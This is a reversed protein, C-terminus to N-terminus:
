GHGGHGREAQGHQRLTAEAALRALRAAQERDLAQEWRQAKAAPVTLRQRIETVEPLPDPPLGNRYRAPPSAPPPPPQGGLHERLWTWWRM